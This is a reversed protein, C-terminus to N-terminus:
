GASQGAIAFAILSAASQVQTPDGANGSQRAFCPSGCGTVPDFTIIVTAWKSWVGSFTSGYFRRAHHWFHWLVNSAGFRAFPTLARRRAASAIGSRKSGHGAGPSHKGSSSRVSVPGPSNSHDVAIQGFGAGQRKKGAVLQSPVEERTSDRRCDDLDVRKGVKQRSIGSNLALGGFFPGGARNFAKRTM